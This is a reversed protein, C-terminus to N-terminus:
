EEKEPPAIKALEREVAETIFLEFERDFHSLTDQLLEWKQNLHEFDEEEWIVKM